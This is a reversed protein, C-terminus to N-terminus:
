SRECRFEALHFQMTPLWSFDITFNYGETKTRILGNLVKRISELNIRKYM